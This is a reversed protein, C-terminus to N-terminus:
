TMFSLLQVATSAIQTTQLWLLGAILRGELQLLRRRSALPLLVGSLDWRSRKVRDFHLGRLLVTRGDASNKVKPNSHSTMEATDLIM